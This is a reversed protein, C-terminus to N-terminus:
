AFPLPRTLLLPLNEDSLSTCYWPCFTWMSIEPLTLPLRMLPSMSTLLPPCRIPASKWAVRCYTRRSVEENSTIFSHPVSTEKGLSSRPAIYIKRDRVEWWQIGAQKALWYFPVWVKGNEEFPVYAFGQTQGKGNELLRDWFHEYDAVCRLPTADWRCEM